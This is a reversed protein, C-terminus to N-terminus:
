FPSLLKAWTGCVPFALVQGMGTRNQFPEKYKGLGTVSQSKQEPVMNEENKRKCLEEIEM